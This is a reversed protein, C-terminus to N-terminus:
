AHIQMCMCPWTYVQTCVHIYVPWGGRRIKNGRYYKARTLHPLNNAFIPQLSEEWKGVYEAKCQSVSVGGMLFLGIRRGRIQIATNRIKVLVTFHFPASCWNQIWAGHVRCLKLESTQVEGVLWTPVMSCECQVPCGFCVNRLRGVQLTSLVTGQLTVMRKDTSLTWQWMVTIGVAQHHTSFLTSWISLCELLTIIFWWRSGKKLSWVM